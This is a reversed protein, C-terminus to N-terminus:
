AFYFLNIRGFDLKRWLFGFYVMWKIAKNAFNKQKSLATIQLDLRWHPMKFRLATKHNILRDPPLFSLVAMLTNRRLFCWFTSLPVEDCFEPCHLAARPDWHSTFCPKMNCMAMLWLYPNGKLLTLYPTKGREKERERSIKWMLCTWSAMIGASAFLNNNSNNAKWSLM